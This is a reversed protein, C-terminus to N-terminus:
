LLEEHFLDQTQIRSVRSVLLTGVLSHNESDKKCKLWTLTQHDRDYERQWKEFTSVTVQCKKAVSELVVSSTRKRASMKDALIFSHDSMYCFHDTFTRQGVTINPGAWYRSNCVKSRWFGVFSLRPQKM